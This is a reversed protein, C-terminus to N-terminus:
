RKITSYKAIVHIQYGAILFILADRGFFTDESRFKNEYFVQETRITTFDM